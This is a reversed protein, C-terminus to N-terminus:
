AKRRSDRNSDSIRELQNKVDSLVSKIQELEKDYDTVTSEDSATKVADRMSNIPLVKNECEAKKLELEATLQSAYEKHFEIEEKLKSIKDAYDASKIELSTCKSELENISCRLQSNNETLEGNLRKEVSLEASTRQLEAYNNDNEASLEAIFSNVDKKSYGGFLRKKFVRYKMIVEDKVKEITYIIVNKSADNM